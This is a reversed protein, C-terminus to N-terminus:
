VLKHLWCGTFAWLLLQELSNLFAEAAKWGCPSVSTQRIYGMSHLTDRSSEEQAGDNMTDRPPASEWYSRLVSKCRPLVSAWGRQLIYPTSLLTEKGMFYRWVMVKWRSNWYKYVRIATQIHISVCAFMYFLCLTQLILHRYLCACLLPQFLGPQSGRQFLSSRNLQMHSHTGLAALSYRKELFSLFRSKKFFWFKGTLFLYPLENFHKLFVTWAWHFRVAPQFFDRWFYFHRQSYCCFIEKRKDRQQSIKRKRCLM